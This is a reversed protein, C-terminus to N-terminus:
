RSAPQAPSRRVDHIKRMAAPDALPDGDVVLLDARKGVALVGRDDLKLLEANNKTAFTLIREIPLGADLM